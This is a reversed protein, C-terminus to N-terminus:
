YVWGKKVGEVTIKLLQDSDLGYKQMLEAKYKDDFKEELKGFEKWEELNKPDPILVEAERTSRNEVAAIEKFLRKRKEESLGFILEPKASLATLRANNILIDNAEGEDYFDHALMGIWLIGREASAQEKTGYIYIFVNTPPNNYKFGSRRKAAHFRRLLEAKLETETPLSTALVEQVIQTKAPSDYIEEDILSFKSNNTSLANASSKPASVATTGTTTGSTLAGSGDLLIGAIVAVAIILVLGGACGITKRKAPAGCQPCSTAEKSIERGCDKCKKLKAVISHQPMPNEQPVFETKHKKERFKAVGYVIAIITLLPVFM